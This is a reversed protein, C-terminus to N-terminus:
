YITIDREVLMENFNFKNNFLTAKPKNEPNLGSFTEKVYMKAVRKPTDKLSVDTLDLGLTEMIDKFKNEILEMKLEDDLKFADVRLPTEISTLFHDDNQDDFNIKQINSNGPDRM